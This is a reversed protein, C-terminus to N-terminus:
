FCTVARSGPYYEWRRIHGSTIFYELPKRELPPAVRELINMKIKHKEPLIARLFVSVWEGVAMGPVYEALGSLNPTLEVFIGYPMISRIVGTVIQGQRFGEANEEWTGLLERGTLVIRGLHEQIELVAACISQGPQFLDATTLLRSICCRQIPMLATYGCGIDCFVGFCAASVVCANLIDGPRLANLCFSRADVMAAKRSLLATGDERFGMVQFCVPKGVRSIISYERQNGHMIDAAAEEHPIVGQIEGLDVYLNHFEDCKVCMARFIEQTREGRRLADLDPPKALLGEPSYPQM